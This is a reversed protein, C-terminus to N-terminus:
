IPEQAIGRWSPNTLISKKGNKYHRVAGNYTEAGVHWDVGDWYAYMTHPSFASVGRQYVGKHVPMVNPAFWQTLTLNM